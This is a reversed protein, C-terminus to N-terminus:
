NRNEITYPDDVTGSGGTVYVNEDLKYVYRVGASQANVDFWSFGGGSSWLKIKYVDGVMTYDPFIWYIDENDLLVNGTGCEASISGSCSEIASGTITAFDETDIPWVTTTAHDVVEGSVTNTVCEGGYAFVSNCYSSANSKADDYLGVVSTVNVNEEIYDCYAAGASILYPVGEEVYALMTDTSNFTGLCGEVGDIGYDVYSGVSAQSLLFSTDAILVSNDIDTNNDYVALGDISLKAYFSKGIESNQIKNSLWIRVDVDVSDNALVIIDKKLINDECDSLSKPELEGVETMIYQSDITDSATTDELILDFMYPVNGNNTVTIRYPQLKYRDEDSIPVSDSIQINDESLTYTIDLNGTKYINANEDVDSSTFISYTTGIMLIAVLVISIVSTIILRKKNM